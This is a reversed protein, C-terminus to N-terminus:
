PRSRSPPCRRHNALCIASPLYKDRPTRQGVIPIPSLLEGFSPCGCHRAGEARLTVLCLRLTVTLLVATEALGLLVDPKAHVSQVVTGIAALSAIDMEGVGIVM